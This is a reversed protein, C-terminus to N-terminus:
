PLASLELQGPDTSDELMGARRHSSDHPLGQCADLWRSNLVANILNQPIKQAHEEMSIKLEKFLTLNECINIFFSLFCGVCFHFFGRFFRFFINSVKIWWTSPSEM